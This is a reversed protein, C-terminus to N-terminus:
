LGMKEISYDMSSQDQYGFKEWEEVSTGLKRNFQKLAKLPHHAEEKTVDRGMERSYETDGSSVSMTTTISEAISKSLEELPSHKGPVLDLSYLPCCLSFLIYAWRIVTATTCLYTELDEHWSCSLGPTYIFMDRGLQVEAISITPVKTDCGSISSLSLSTNTSKNEERALEYLLVPLSYLKFNVEKALDEDVRDLLWSLVMQNQRKYKPLCYLPPLDGSGSLSLLFELVDEVIEQYNSNFMALDLPIKHTANSNETCDARYGKPIPGPEIFVHYTEQVGQRLSIRALSMEAPVVRGEATICFINTHFLYFVEDEVKQNMLAKDVMTKIDNKMNDQQIAEQRTRNVLLELPRGYSDYGGKVVWGGMAERSERMYRSRGEMSLNTWLPSCAEVLEPPSMAAWSPNEKQKQRCFQFFGNSGKKKSSM